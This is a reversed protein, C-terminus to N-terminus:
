QLGKRPAHPAEAVAGPPFAFEARPVKHGREIGGPGEFSEKSPPFRSLPLVPTPQATGARWGFGTTRAAVACSEAFCLPSLQIQM